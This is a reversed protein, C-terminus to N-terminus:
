TSPIIDSTSVAWTANIFGDVLIATQQSSQHASMAHIGGYLRSLGAQDAIDNWKSFTLTIANQPVTPEILSTEKPIVFNGYMNTQNSKFLPCILKQEDYFTTTKTINNGFWKNMTLAFAKSFHSHGSPFDAFPPTVFNFEQYPQWQAGDVTGNWSAIMAASEYQIISPCFDVEIKTNERFRQKHLLLDGRAIYLIQM